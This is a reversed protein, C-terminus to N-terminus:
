IFRAKTRGRKALGDGHCKAGVRGGKAYKEVKGGSKAAGGSIEAM